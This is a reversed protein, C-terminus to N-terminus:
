IILSETRLFKSPPRCSSHLAVEPASVQKLQRMEYKILRKNTNTKSQKQKM